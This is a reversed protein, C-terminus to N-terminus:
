LPAGERDRLQDVIAGAVDDGHVVRLTDGVIARDSGADIDTAIVVSNFV